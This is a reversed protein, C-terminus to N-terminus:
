IIVLQYVPVVVHFIMSLTPMQGLKIRKPHDSVLNHAKFCNLIWVFTYFRKDTKSLQLIEDNMHVLWIFSDSIFIVHKVM